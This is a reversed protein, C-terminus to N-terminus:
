SRAARSVCDRHVDIIADVLDPRDGRCEALVRFVPETGSGRMWVSARDLGDDGVFRLKLGGTKDGIRNGAGTRTEVGEYNEFVPTLSGYVPELRDTFRSLEEDVINEWNTKLRGHPINGVRMKAKEDDTALTTWAPLERSLELFGTAEDRHPRGCLEDWIYDLRLARLRILSLLTALPDRVTAPPKISGGNSGEGAIPVIGGGSRVQSVLSVVNAEGVEARRVEAGFLAALEDIRASTPGNAVVVHQNEGDYTHKAACLEILVVLAFVSQADLIEIDGSRSRFVLNGRDGDNDPTYGVEFGSDIDGIRRLHSAVEDLGRGEPLIQHVITGPEDNFAAFRVGLSPLLVRDISECRASGNFDAVVGFDGRLTEQGATVFSRYAKEAEAKWSSRKSLQGEIEQPDISRVRNVLDELEKQAAVISRFREILPIAIDRSLVSGDGLGLKFGNHGVPNHSASIYFFADVQRENKVWAMIEPSAVVGLFRIRAGSALCARLVSDAIAPGTPRTDMGLAITPHPRGSDSRVLDLFLTTALLTCDRHEVSISRADSHEAGGFVARWGSASLVMQAVCNRRDEPTSIAQM